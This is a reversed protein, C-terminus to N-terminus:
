AKEARASSSETLWRLFILALLAMGLTGYILGDVAFKQGLGAALLSGAIAGISLLVSYIGMAAGRGAQAGVAGALLALAAPTFGSEVMICAATLTGILWRTFPAGATSHNFLFFGVCVGLMALLAIRLARRVSIHPLIFSWGLVGTGFVLSYGLLIWGVRDPRDAFLGALFQHGQSRHTMLFFFTPGLWLGVITNVCLWVPALRRLSPEALARYFGSLAQKSGYGRSGIAGLFLFGACLLYAVAVISFAVAGCVRWLQSGVLGGLGLGALLSLEFYSMVRARLAYDDATVDTLHALLSPAIAAAGVGELARSLFFISVQGSMGFLQTALAALLSGSIMLARPSIADSALGMPISGALEAIFSIAGLTGVLAADVRSGHNALDALYIGVLVGSAGGAIRMLANGVIVFPLRHRARNIAEGTKPILPIAMRTQTMKECDLCRKILIHRYV